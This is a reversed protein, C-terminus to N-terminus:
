GAKTRRWTLHRRKPDVELTHVRSEARLGGSGLFCEQGDPIHPPDETFSFFLYTQGNQKVSPKTAARRFAKEVIADGGKRNDGGERERGGRKGEGGM